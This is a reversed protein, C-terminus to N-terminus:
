ETIEVTITITWDCSPDSNNICDFNDFFCITNTIAVLDGTLTRVGGVFRVTGTLIWHRPTCSVISSSEMTFQGTGFISCASIFQVKQPTGELCNFSMAPQTSRTYALSAPTSQTLTYNGSPGTWTPQFSGTINVTINANLTAPHTTDQCCVTDGGGSTCCCAIVCM